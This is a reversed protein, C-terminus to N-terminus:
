DYGAFGGVECDEGGVWGGDVGVADWLDGYCRGDGGAFYGCMDLGCVVCGSAPVLVAARGLIM